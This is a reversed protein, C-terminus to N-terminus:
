CEGSLGRRSYGDLVAVLYVFGRALRIYTSDTSWVQNPRIVLVGRLLSSHVTHQPHPAVPIQGPAMGALGLVGMLRQVRTRNIQHGVGRLYQRITRSGYFQHRIYEADILGRLTWEQEDLTAAPHPASRTSRTVVTLACHRTLPLPEHPSM